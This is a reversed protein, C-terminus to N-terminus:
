STMSVYRVSSFLLLDIDVPRTVFEEYRDQVKAYAYLSWALDIMALLISIDQGTWCAHVLEERRKKGRNNRWGNVIASAIM